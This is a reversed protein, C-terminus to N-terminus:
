DGPEDLPVTGVQYRAEVNRQVLIDGPAFFLNRTPVHQRVLKRARCGRLSVQGSYLTIAFLLVPSPQLAGALKGFGVLVVLIAFSSPAFIGFFRQGYAVGALVARENDM